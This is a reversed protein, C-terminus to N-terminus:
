FPQTYGKLYGRKKVLQVISHRVGEFCQNLEYDQSLFQLKINWDHKIPEKVLKMHRNEAKKLTTPVSCIIDPNGLKEYLSNTRYAEFMINTPFLIQMNEPCFILNPRFIKTNKPSRLIIGAYTFCDCIDMHNFFNRTHRKFESEAHYSILIVANLKQHILEEIKSEKVM